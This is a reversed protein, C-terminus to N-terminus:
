ALWWAFVRTSSAPAAARDAPTRALAAARSPGPSGDVERRRSPRDISGCTASRRRRRAAVRRAAPRGQAAGRHPDHQQPRRRPRRDAQPEGNIYIKVGAAKRRATTPSSARSDLHEAPDRGRAVVKLANEPWKHVLHTAVRTRERALPGLGPLRRPRGDARHGLRHAGAQPLKIWAGFSFAQDKEFDGSDASRSRCRRRERGTAAPAPARAIASAAAPGRDPDDRGLTTPDAGRRAMEDFESRASAKRRSSSGGSTPWDRRRAAELPRPRGAGPVFVTPPTDKVNGDM